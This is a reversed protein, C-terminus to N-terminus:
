KAALAEAQLKAALGTLATVVKTCAGVVDGLLTQVEAAIDLEGAALIVNVATAEAGLVSVDAAEVAKLIATGETLVEPILADIAAVGKTLVAAADRYIAAEAFKIERESFTSITQFLSPM